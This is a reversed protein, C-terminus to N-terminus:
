SGACSSASGPAVQGVVLFVMDLLLWTVGITSLDWVPVPDLRPDRALELRLQHGAVSFM